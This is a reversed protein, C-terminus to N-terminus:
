RHQSPSPDFAGEPRPESAPQNHPTTVTLPEDSLQRTTRFFARRARVQPQFRLRAIATFADEMAKLVAGESVGPQAARKYQEEVRAPGFQNALDLLFAFVRESTATGAYATERALEASYTESALGLQVRQMPLSAGLAELKTKWPNKTLEFAPDIAWGRENLGGNPKATYELITEDDGMIRLWEATERACCAQLIRHLQGAKQSWQLIGFSVGCQDMNLNLSEFVGGTEFLSTLWVFRLIPTFAVDLVLPIYAPGVAASPAPRNVLDRLLGSGASDKDLTLDLDHKRLYASIALRTASGYWSYTAARADPLFAYGHGRLLDQLYGVARINQGPLLPSVSPTGELLGDIIANGCEMGRSYLGHPANGHVDPLPPKTKISNAGFIFKM